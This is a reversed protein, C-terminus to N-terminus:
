IRAPAFPLPAALLALAAVFVGQACTRWGAGDGIFVDLLSEGHITEGRPLADSRRERPVARGGDGEVPGDRRQHHKESRQTDQEVVDRLFGAREPDVDMAADPKDIEGQDDGSKPPPRRVLRGIQRGVNALEIASKRKRRVTEEIRQHHENRNEPKDGKDPM